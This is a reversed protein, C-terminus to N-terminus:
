ARSSPWAAIGSPRRTRSALFAVALLWTTALALVVMVLALEALRLGSDTWDPSARTSTGSSRPFPALLRAMRGPAADRAPNGGFVSRLGRRCHRGAGSDHDVAPSPRRSACSRVGAADRGCDGVIGTEPRSLLAVLLSIAIPLAPGSGPGGVSCWRGPPPPSPSPRTWATLSFIGAARGCSSSCRSLSLRRSLAARGAPSFGPLWAVCPRSTPLRSAAALAIRAPLRDDPWATPQRRRAVPRSTWLLFARGPLAGGGPLCAVAGDARPRFGRLARDM